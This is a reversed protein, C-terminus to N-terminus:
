FSGEESVFSFLSGGIAAQGEGEWRGESEGLENREGERFRENGEASASCGANFSCFEFRREEIFDM